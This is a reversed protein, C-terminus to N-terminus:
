PGPRYHPPLRRELEGAARRLIARNRDRYGPKPDSIEEDVSEVGLSAASEPSMEALAELLVQAHENSREVWGPTEASFLFSAAGLLAALLIRSTM